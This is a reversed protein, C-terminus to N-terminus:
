SSERIAEEDTETVVGKFQHDHFYHFLEWKGNSYELATCNEIWDGSNMYVVQGHKNSFTRIQPKHIHGCIVYDYGHQIGHECAIDEFDAVNSKVIKKVNDKVTKSLSVRERGVSMLANNLGRNFRILYDYSRGGLKALWKAKSSVSLDFIDGHFIWHSKGDLELVLEDLLEFTDLKYGSYRRLIEDHNGTIYYVPKGQKVFELILFLNETHEPPWYNGSLNWIDVWDGNIVIINPDVTKLYKNLEEAHAGYTGLHIDSIILVEIKRKQEPM